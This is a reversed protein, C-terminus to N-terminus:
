TCLLMIHGETLPRTESLCRNHHINSNGGKPPSLIIGNDTNERNQINPIIRSHVNFNQYSTSNRIETTKLLHWLLSQHIM